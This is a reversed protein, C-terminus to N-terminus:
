CTKIGDKVEKEWDPGLVSKANWGWSALAPRVGFAAALAM